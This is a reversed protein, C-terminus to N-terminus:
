VRLVIELSGSKTLGVELNAEQKQYRRAAEMLTDQDIFLRDDHGLRTTVEEVFIMTGTEGRCDVLRMAAIATLQDRDTETRGRWPPRPRLKTLAREFRRRIEGDSLDWDIKVSYIDGRWEHKPDKGHEGLPLLHKDNYRSTWEKKQEPALQQWPIKFGALWAAKLEVPPVKLHNPYKETIVRAGMQRRLEYGLCGGREAPPCRWAFGIDDDDLAQLDYFHHLPVKM